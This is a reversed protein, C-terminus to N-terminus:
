PTNASIFPIGHIVCRITAGPVLRNLADKDIRKGGKDLLEGVTGSAQAVAIPIYSVWLCIFMAVGLRIM